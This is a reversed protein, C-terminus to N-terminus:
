LMVFKYSKCLFRAQILFLFINFDLMVGFHGFQLLKRKSYNFSYTMLLIDDAQRFM